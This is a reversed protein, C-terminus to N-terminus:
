PLENASCRCVLRRRYVKLAQAFVSPVQPINGIDDRWFNEAHESNQCINAHNVTTTLRPVTTGDMRM